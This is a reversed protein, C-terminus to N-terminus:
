PRLTEAPRARHLAARTVDAGEYEPAFYATLVGEDGIRRARFSRELFVLAGGADLPGTERADRCVMAIETDRSVGCGAAFAQLAAAYDEAYWGPLASLPM